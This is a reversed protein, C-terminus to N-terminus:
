TAKSKTSKKEGEEIMAMKNERWQWTMAMATGPGGLFSIWSLNFATLVMDYLTPGAAKLSRLTDMVVLWTWAISSVFVFWSDWQFTYHLGMVTSDKWTAKSPLFVYSLSLQPNSSTLCIYLTVLHTIASIIGAVLYIQRLYKRDLTMTTTKKAAEVSSPSSPSLLPALVLLLIGPFMPAPQWLATLNQTINIDGWPYYIVLTPVLYGIVTAPLLARAYGLPVERGSSLYSDKKSSLTYAVYFLPIIAAAGM